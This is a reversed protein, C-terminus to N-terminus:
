MKTNSFTGFVLWFVHLFQKTKVKCMSKSSFDIFIDMFYFCLKSMQIARNLQLQLIELSSKLCCIGEWIADENEQKRISGMLCCFDRSLVVETIQKTFRISTLPTKMLRCTGVCLLPQHSIRLEKISVIGEITNVFNSVALMAHLVANIIYVSFVRCSKTNCIELTTLFYIVCIELVYKFVPLWFINAVAQKEM